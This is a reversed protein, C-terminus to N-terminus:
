LIKLLHYFPKSLSSSHPELAQFIRLAGETCFSALCTAKHGSLTSAETYDWTNGQVHFGSSFDPANACLESLKWSYYMKMKRFVHYTSFSSRVTYVVLRGSSSM